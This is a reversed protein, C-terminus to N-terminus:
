DVFMAALRDAEASVSRRTRTPLPGFPDVDISGSRHRWTGRVSGDVLFTGVSQPNRVHFVVARHEEALLGARRAHALLTADFTPLFRVPAPTGPDPLPARPLDVLERGDEDRFHRLRLREAAGAMAAAPVGAWDAAEGPTAPGFGGLYRRLLHALGDAQTTTSSGLWHDALAFRDARRREWTGSPPVRVLDVWLGVGDWGARPFGQQHLRDVLEARSRPGDALMAAVADAMREYDAAELGRERTVRLFWSRRAQRVGSALMPYDSASVLHITARMLTGQVASRRELARTLEHRFFGDLRTWLGIYGSPAYQMQIGGIRELARHVPLRSRELLLQRALLARNLARTTLVRAAM